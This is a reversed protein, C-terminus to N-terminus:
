DGGPPAHSSSSAGAVARVQDMIQAAFVVSSATVPVGASRLVDATWRNCTFLMDYTTPSAYYASGPYPGEALRIPRGRRDQELQRWLFANLSDIGAMTVPLSVVQSAGFAAAPPARLATVLVAGPGPFLAASDGSVTHYRSLFYARDGFGFVLYRVGPFDGAVEALPPHVDSAALGIATHWGGDIVFVTAVAPGASRPLPVREACGAVLILMVCLALRKM